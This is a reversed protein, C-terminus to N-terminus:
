MRSDRRGHDVEHSTHPRHTFPYLLGIVTLMVCTASIGILNPHLHCAIDAYWSDAKPQRLFTGWILVPFTSLVGVAAVWSRTSPLLLATLFLGLLGGGATGAYQFWLDTVSSARAQYALYLWAAVGTGLCGLAITSCRLIVLERAPTQPGHFRWVFDSLVITASANLSSDITSMAAAMIAAVLLGTLVPPLENQIFYPFVQDSRLPIDQITPPTPYALYLGSGILLFVLSLPVYTLAGMWISAAASRDSTTSLYRQVYNEDIGYNRVNESLGYLFVVLITGRTMDLLEWWPRPSKTSLDWAGWTRKAEPLEAFFAAIGGAKDVLVWLCVVAGVTLIIVQMVDTWVVARLGGVTDYIIVVLGLVVLTSLIPAGMLPAAAFSVFLLVTATRILQLMIYCAAGYLRAWLGFRQELFEYASYRVNRRYLPVFYRAALYAAFPLAAGFWFINWNESYAKQPVGMFTISSTFTGLVSMGMAWGPISQGALSYEQATKNTGSIRFGIWLTGALYLGVIILPIVQLVNV